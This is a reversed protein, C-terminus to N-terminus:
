VRSPSDHHTRWLAKLIRSGASITPSLAFPRTARPLPPSSACPQTCGTRCSFCSATTPEWVAGLPLHRLSPLVCGDPPPASCSRAAEGNRQAEAKLQTPLFCSAQLLLCIFFGGAGRIQTLRQPFCLGAAVTPRVAGGRALVWTVAPM